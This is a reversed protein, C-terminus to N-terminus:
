AVPMIHIKKFFNKKIKKCHDYEGLSAQIFKYAANKEETCLLMKVLNIILVFLKTLLVTLFTTKIIKQTHAMIMAKSKKQCLQVCFVSLILMFKFPVSLQKSYNKSSFSGKRLKVNQKGNIVVCSKKHETLVKESSFCQLCCRCFHKKNKNKTKNFM